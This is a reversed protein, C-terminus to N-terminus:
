AARVTRQPLNMDPMRRAGRSVGPGAAITDDGQTTTPAPTTTITTRSTMVRPAYRPRLGAGSPADAGGANGSGDASAVGLRGM